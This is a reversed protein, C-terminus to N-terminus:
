NAGVESEDRWLSSIWQCFCCLDSLGHKVGSGDGDLLATWYGEFHLLPGAELCLFVDEGVLVVEFEGLLFDDILIDKLLEGGLGLRAGWGGHGIIGLNTLLPLLLFRDPENLHIKRKISVRVAVKDRFVPMNALAEARGSEVVPLLAEVVLFFWHFLACFLTLVDEM